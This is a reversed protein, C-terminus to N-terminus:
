SRDCKHRGQFFFCNATCTNHDFIKHPFSKYAPATDPVPPFDNDSPHFPPDVSNTNDVWVDQHGSSLFDCTNMSISRRGSYLAYYSKTCLQLDGNLAGAISAGLDVPCDMAAFLGFKYEDASGFGLVYTSSPSNESSIFDPQEHAWPGTSPPDLLPISSNCIFLTQFRIDGTTSGQGTCNLASDKLAAICGFRKTKSYADDIDCTIDSDTFDDKTGLNFRCKSLCDGDFGLEITKSSDLPLGTFDGIHLPSDTQATRLIADKSVLKLRKEDTDLFSDCTILDDQAWRTWFGGILM